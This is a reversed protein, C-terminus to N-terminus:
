ASGAEKFDITYAYDVGQEDYQWYVRENMVQQAHERTDTTVVVVFVFDSV